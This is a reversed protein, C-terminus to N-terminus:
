PRGDRDMIVRILSSKPVDVHSVIRLLGDGADEMECPVPKGDVTVRAPAPMQAVLPLGKLAKEEGNRILMELRGDTMTQRTVQLSPPLVDQWVVRGGHVLLYRYGRTRQESLPFACTTTTTLLTMTKDAREDRSMFGAPGCEVPRPWPPAHQGHPVAVDHTYHTHGCLYLDVRNGLLLSLFRDRDPRNAWEGFPSIHGAVVTLSHEKPTLVTELWQDQRADLFSAGHERSAMGPSSVDVGAFRVDGIDFSWFRPFGLYKEHYWRTGAGEYSRDIEHNGAIAFVPMSLKGLQETIAHCILKKDEDRRGNHAEMQDGLSLVFAPDLANITAAIGAFLDNRENAGPRYFHTDTIAAFTFLTHDPNALTRFFQPRTITLTTGGLPRARIELDCSKDVVIDLIWSASAVDKRAAFLTLGEGVEWTVAAEELSVLEPAHLRMSQRTGTPCLQPITPALLSLGPRELSIDDFGCENRGKVSLCLQGWLPKGPTTFTAEVFQWSDSAKPSSIVRQFPNMLDTSLRGDGDMEVQHGVITVQAGQGRYWFSVRYSTAPNLPIRYPTIWRGFSLGGRGAISVGGSGNRGLGPGCRGISDEHERFFCWDVPDNDEGDEFSPNSIWNHPGDLELGHPMPDASTPFPLTVALMMAAVVMILPRRSGPRSVAVGHLLIWNRSSQTVHM